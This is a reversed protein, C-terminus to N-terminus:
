RWHRYRCRVCRMDKTQRFHRIVTFASPASIAPSFLGISDLTFLQNATKGTFPPAPTAPYALDGNLQATEPGLSFGAAQTHCRMCETESPIHWVQGAVSVDKGATVRTAETQAANWEYTYGAWVGDPHRMFLRTEILQFFARRLVIFWM